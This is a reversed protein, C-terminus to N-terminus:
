LTELVYEGDPVHTEGMKDISGIQEDSLPLWNGDQEMFSTRQIYGENYISRTFACMSRCRVYPAPKEIHYVVDIEGSSLRRFMDKLIHGNRERIRDASVSNLTHLAKASANRCSKIRVTSTKM